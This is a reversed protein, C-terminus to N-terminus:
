DVQAGGIVFQGVHDGVELALEVDLQDAADVRDLAPDAAGEVDEGVGRDGAEHEVHAAALAAQDDVGLVDAAEGTPRRDVHAGLVAAGLAEARPDRVAALLALTALALALLPPLAPLRSAVTSM